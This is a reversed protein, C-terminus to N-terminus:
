YDPWKARMITWTRVHNLVLDKNGLEPRNLLQAQSPKEKQLSSSEWQVGDPKPTGKWWGLASEKSVEAKVSVQKITSLQKDEKNVLIEREKDKSEWGCPLPCLPINYAGSLMHQIFLTMAPTRLGRAPHGLFDSERIGGPFNPNPRNPFNWLPTRIWLLPSFWQALHRRLKQLSWLTM